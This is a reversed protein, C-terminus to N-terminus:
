RTRRRSYELHTRQFDPIVTEIGLRDDVHGRIGLDSFKPLLEDGLGLLADAIVKVRLDAALDAPPPAQDILRRHQEMHGCLAVLRGNM